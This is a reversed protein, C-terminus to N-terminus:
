NECILIREINNLNLTNICSADARISAGSQYTESNVRAQEHGQIGRLSQIEFFIEPVTNPTSFFAPGIAGGKQFRAHEPKNKVAKKVAKEEASKM